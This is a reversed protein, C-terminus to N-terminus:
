ALSLAAPAPAHQAAAPLPALLLLLSAVVAGLSRLFLRVYTAPAQDVPPLMEPLMDRGMADAFISGQLMSAAAKADAASPIFGHQALREVYGVLERHTQEPRAMTHGVCEPREHMEAMTTRIMGGYAMLFRHDDQAWATLEHQPDVPVEPLTVAARSEAHARVAEAILASKSGFLRFLTVENVGAEEAIRRTTAGRFGSESYLRIAAELIQQRTPETM